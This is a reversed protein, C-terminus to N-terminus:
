LVIVRPQLPQSTSFLRHLDNPHLHLRRSRSNTVAAHAISSVILLSSRVATDPSFIARVKSSLLVFDVEHFSM